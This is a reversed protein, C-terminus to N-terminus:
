GRVYWYRVKASFGSLGNTNQIVIRTGSEIFVNVGGGYTGIVASHADDTIIAEYRIVNRASSAFTIRTAESASSPIAGCDILITYVPKDNWRETTLYEAGLNMPPNSYSLELGTGDSYGLVEDSKTINFPASTPFLFMTNGWMSGFANRITYKVTTGEQQYRVYETKYGSDQVITCQSGLPLGAGNIVMQFIAFQGLQGTAIITLPYRSSTGSSNIYFNLSSGVDGMSVSQMAGIQEPTVGHPNNKDEVHAAPAAGTQDATVNHPNNKNSIHSVDGHATVCFEYNLVQNMEGFKANLIM